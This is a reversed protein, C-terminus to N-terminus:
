SSDVIKRVLITFQNKNLDFFSNYCPLHNYKATFANKIHLLSKNWETICQYRISNKGYKITKFAPLVLKGSEISRTNYSHTRRESFYNSISIPLSDSFSDFVFLLNSVRVMNVFLPINLFRFLPSADSRFPKFDIIRLASRQLSLIKNLLCNGNQGWVQCCYNIHSYFISFYLSRITNKNVYHRIKALMSNSRNLKKILENTHPKWSLHEDLLVGLYKIYSSPYLRQGNLRINIEYNILKRPSRFIVFETKNVNLSIRNANLWNTIGKLDYNVKKCLVKLSKNIYLLNTDDAFHHVMSNKVSINLDNIYILFLLPGLVSGQPVGHHIVNLSSNFGNITVFQKRNHLYSSFWNKVVGRAGYYELKSVLIDHDVTDFAKQLDIFIGCAFHGTDLAERIKETISILAHSTSHKARFGFQLESICNYINLFSYLRSYMLKELLKSINSLLSIPRYNGCSLKSGKKFLPLVSSTKLIDPFVGTSFSLNFLNSLVVSIESNLHKLVSTPVSNPGSAKKNKLNSILNSIENTDTPSIFLSHINPNKLYRTFSLHTSHIKSQLVEGISSFYTNFTNAIEIPDTISSGNDFICTPLSGTNNKMQIINKIGKWTERLNKVNDSFYKNFHNEKSQRILTVLMNRYMKFNHFLLQKREPDKARIYRSHLDTKKKLSKLIGITIWPKFRRKFSKNSLKKLPIHKDLLKNFNLFFSNFSFNADETNVSIINDWDIDLFDSYFAEKDYNFTNRRYINHKRPIVKKNLDPYIFFQPLHDSVTSTLNGSIINTNTSNSFINDILTKSRDTIRTPLTIYPLLNYSSILNFFESTNIDTSCKILDINFDGLLIITKNESTIKHLVPTFLDNFEVISMCPHRYICGIIINSKKPFLIEIFISELHSHKYLLLDDRPKYNFKNSVYLLAGGCSAETPTHEFSYGEISIPSSIGLSKKIKTETLGLVSFNFNLLNIMANLEDFHANLSSINLHFVSFSCDNDFNSSCFDYINFYKCCIPNSSLNDEIDSNGLIQSTFFDNFKNFLKIKDASPFPNLNSPLEQFNPIRNSSYILKLEQDTVRSFPFLDDVCIICFWTSNSKLLHYDLDSLKNCNKHINLKCNNCTLILRGKVVTKNCVPCKGNCVCM